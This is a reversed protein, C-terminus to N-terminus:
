LTPLATHLTFAASSNTVRDWRCLADCIRPFFSRLINIQVGFM